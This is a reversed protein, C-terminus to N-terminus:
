FSWGEDKGGDPRATLTGEVRTIKEPVRLGVGFLVFVAWKWRFPNFLLCFAFWWLLELYTFFFLAPTPAGTKLVRTMRVWARMWRPGPRTLPDCLLMLLIRTYIGIHWNGVSGIGAVYTCNIASISPHPPPFAQLYWNPPDYPDKFCEEPLFDLSPRTFGTALVVMDAKILEEKRTEGNTSPPGSFPERSEDIKRSVLIGQEQFSGIDCRVWDARGKRIWELVQSNVMPTDTFLGGGRPAIGALDRYFLRRLLTEPIWSLRTESGFINLSLLMDVFVNRPIIWKDTRSLISISTAGKAVAHELGEVASAGGGIIVVRKGGPDKGTLESSHYV